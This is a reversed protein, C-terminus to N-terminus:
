PIFGALNLVNFVSNGVDLNWSSLEIVDGCQKIPHCSTMFNTAGICHMHWIGTVDTFPQPSTKQNWLKPMSWFPLFLLSGVALVDNCFFSSIRLTRSNWSQYLQHYTGIRKLYHGSKM